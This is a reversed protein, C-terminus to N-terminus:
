RKPTLRRSTDSNISALPISDSAKEDILQLFQGGAGRVFAVNRLHTEIEQREVAPDIRLTSGGMVAFTLADRALLDRLEGPNRRWREFAINRFQIAHYGTSAIESIAREDDGEWTIAAYGIRISATQAVV